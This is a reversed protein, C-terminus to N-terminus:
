AAPRSKKRKRQWGLLGIAGLGTAFLPLAAPLPTADVEVRFAPLYGVSSGASKITIDFYGQNNFSWTSSSGDAANPETFSLWYYQGAVLSPMLVSNMTVIAGSGVSASNPVTFSKLLAGISSATGAYLNFITQTTATTTRGLVTTIRSLGGSASPQFFFAQFVTGDIGYKLSSYSDAPGFTDFVVTAANSSGSVLASAMFFVAAAATRKLFLM